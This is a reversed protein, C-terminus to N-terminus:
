ARGARTATRRRQVSGSRPSRAPQRHRDRHPVGADRQGGDPHEDVAELLHPLAGRETEAQLAAGDADQQERHEAAEADRSQQRGPEGEGEHQHQHGTGGHQGDALAGHPERGDAEEATIERRDQQGGAAAVMDREEAVVRQEVASHERHRPHSRPPRQVQHAEHEREANRRQPARLVESRFEERRRFGEEDREEEHVHRDRHRIRQLPALWALDIGRQQEARRQDRERHLDRQQIALRHRQGEGRERHRRDVQQQGQPRAPLGVQPHQALARGGEAQGEGGEGDGQREGRTPGRGGPRQLADGQQPQALRLLPTPRLGRANAQLHKGTKGVGRRELVAVVAHGHEIRM